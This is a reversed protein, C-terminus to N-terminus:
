RDAAKSHFQCIKASERSWSVIKMTESFSCYNKRFPQVKSHATLELM